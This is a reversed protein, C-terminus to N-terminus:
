GVELFIHKDYELIGPDELEAFGAFEPKSPKKPRIAFSICPKYIVDFNVESFGKFDIFNKKKLLFILDEKIKEVYMSKSQIGSLTKTIENWRLEYLKKEYDLVGKKRIQALSDRASRYQSFYTLYVLGLFIGDFKAIKPNHYTKRRDKFELSLCYDMLQDYEGERSKGSLYKIEICLMLDKLAEKRSKFILILDPEGFKPSSEWFLYDVDDYESLDIGQAKVNNLFSNRDTSYDKAEKLIQFMGESAPLYKILGFVNSTLIDESNEVEPAKGKLEAQLM